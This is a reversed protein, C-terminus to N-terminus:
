YHFRHNIHTQTFWQMSNLRQLEVQVINLGSEAYLNVELSTKWTIERMEPTIKEILQEALELLQAFNLELNTPSYLSQLPRPLHNISQVFKGSHPAVISLIIPKRSCSALETYFTSLETASPVYKCSSTDTSSAQQVCKQHHKMDKLRLYPVESVPTPMIWRNKYQRAHLKVKFGFLLKLGTSYLVLM